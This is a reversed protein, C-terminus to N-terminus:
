QLCGTPPNIYGLSLAGSVIGQLIGYIIVVSLIKSWDMRAFIGVVFTAIVVLLFIIIALPGSMWKIIACGVTSILPLDFAAALAVSPASALGLVATTFLIKFYTEPSMVLAAFPKRPDFRKM